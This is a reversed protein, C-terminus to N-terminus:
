DGVLRKVGVKLKRPFPVLLRGKSLQVGTRNAARANGHEVVRELIEYSASPRLPANSLTGSERLFM